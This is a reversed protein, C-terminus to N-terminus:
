LRALVDRSAEAAVNHLGRLTQGIARIHDPSTGCCGGVINAGARVLREVKGAMEEPTERFVTTGDVLEPMGANSKFWLPKATAPRMLAAVQVMNDIGSGCNAGVVNAGSADLEAAAQEPTVGMMTAFGKPGPDFTMSVVVPLDAAQRAATLAAKAESLDTQTEIVIGDAGADACARIQELYCAVFEEETKTGLPQMFEGTPGISAFVLADHGAARRSIETGARSLEVARDALGSKELKFRSGGFTNTLIIDSGADVYGQAVAQVDDSRDANWLEPVDGAGLGRKALETGWAGDSLLVAEEKLREIWNM